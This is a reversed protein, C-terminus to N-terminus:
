AACPASHVPTEIHTPIAIANQTTAMHKPSRRLHPPLTSQGAFGFGLWANCGVSRLARSFAFTLGCSYYRTLQYIPSITSRSDVQLGRHTSAPTSSCPIHWVHIESPWIDTHIPQTRVEPRRHHPRQAAFKHRTCFM